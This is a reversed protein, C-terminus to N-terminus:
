LDIGEESRNLGHKRELLLQQREQQPAKMKETKKAFLPTKLKEEEFDLFEKVEEPTLGKGQPPKLPDIPIIAITEGSTRKLIYNEKELLLSHRDSKYHKRKYGLLEWYKRIVSAVQNAYQQQKAADDAKTSFEQMESKDTSKASINFKELVVKELTPEPQTTTLPEGRRQQNNIERIIYIAVLTSGAEKVLNQFLPEQRLKRLWNDKSSSRKKPEEHTPTIELPKEVVIDAESIPPYKEVEVQKEVEQFALLVAEKDRQPEYSLGRKYLQNISYGRGIRGGAIEIGNLRFSVGQIQQSEKSLRPRVYVDFEKLRTIFQTYSPSNEIVLDIRDAILQRVSPKESKNKLEKISPSRMMNDTVTAEIGLEVLESAIRENSCPSIQLGFEKELKRAAVESRYWDWSDSVVEGDMRIRSAIIHIHEHSKDEHRAIIFLSSALEEEGVFEMEQLYRSGIQAYQQDTLHEHFEGKPHDIDRHAVSLIMHACAKQLQPKARRIAAFEGAFERPTDGNMNTHILSSKEKGLVYQLTNLFNSHKFIKSIM